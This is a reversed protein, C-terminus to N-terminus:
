GRFLARILDKWEDGHIQMEYLHDAAADANIVMGMEICALVIEMQRMTLTPYAYGQQPQTV